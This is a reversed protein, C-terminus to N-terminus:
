YSGANCKAEQNSMKKGTYFGFKQPALATRFSLINLNAPDVLSQLISDNLNSLGSLDDLVATLGARLGDM